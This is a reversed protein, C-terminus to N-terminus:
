PLASLFETTVRETEKGNYAALRAYNVVKRDETSAGIFSKGIASKRLFNAASNSIFNEKLDKL